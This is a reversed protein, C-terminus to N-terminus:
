LFSGYFSLKRNRKRYKIKKNIKEYYIQPLRKKPHFYFNNKLERKYTKLWKNLVGPKKAKEILGELEKLNGFIDDNKWLSVFAEDNYRFIPISYNLAEIALTTNHLIVFDIKEFFEDINEGRKVFYVNKGIINKKYDELNDFPHISIFFEMKPYKKVIEKIIGILEKKTKDNGTVPFLILGRKMLNKKKKQRKKKVYKPNGIIILRDPNIYKKQVDYTIKGWLLTYDALINENLIEQPSYKHYNVILGHQLSFTPIGRKKCLLTIISEEGFASSCFAVYGTPELKDIVKKFYSIQKYRQYTRAIFLYYYRGFLKKLNVKRFKKWIILLLWLNPFYFKYNKLPKKKHEYADLFFLEKKSFSSLAKKVLNHHDDRPMFYSALIKGKNKEIKFNDIFFIFRVILKLRESFKRDQNKYYTYIENAMIPWLNISYYEMGSFFEKSIKLYPIKNVWLEKEKKM